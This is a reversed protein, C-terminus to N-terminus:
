AVMQRFRSASNFTLERDQPVPHPEMRASIRGSAISEYPREVNRPVTTDSKAFKDVRWSYVTTKRHGLGKKLRGGSKTGHWSHSWRKKSKTGHFVVSEQGAVCFYDGASYRHRVSKKYLKTLRCTEIFRTAREDLIQETEDLEISYQILLRRYLDMEEMIFAAALERIAVDSDRSSACRRLMYLAANGVEQLSGYGMGSLERDFIRKAKDTVNREYDLFVKFDCIGAVCDLEEYHHFSIDSIDLLDLREAFKAFESHMVMLGMGSSIKEGSVPMLTGFASVEGKDVTVLPSQNQASSDWDLQISYLIPASEGSELSILPRCFSLGGEIDQPLADFGRLFAETM